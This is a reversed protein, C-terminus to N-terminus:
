YSTIKIDNSGLEAAHDRLYTQALKEAGERTNFPYDKMEPRKVRCWQKEGCVDLRVMVTHKKKKAM